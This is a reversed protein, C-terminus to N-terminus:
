KVHPTHVRGSELAPKVWTSKVRDDAVVFPISLTTMAVIFGAIANVVPLPSHYPDETM